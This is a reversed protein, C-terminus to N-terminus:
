IEISGNGIEKKKTVRESKTRTRQLWVTPKAKSIVNLLKTELLERSDKKTGGKEAKHIDSLKDLSMSCANLISVEPLGVERRMIDMAQAM